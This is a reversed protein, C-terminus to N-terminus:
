LLHAYAALIPIEIAACMLLLATSFLEGGWTLLPLDRAGAFSMTTALLYVIDAFGWRM